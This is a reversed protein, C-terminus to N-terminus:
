NIKEKAAQAKPPMDLFGHGFGLDHLDIRVKKELLKVSKATINLIKIWKSNIKTCPTLYPGVDHMQMHIAERAGNTSLVTKELNFPRPVRILFWNVM